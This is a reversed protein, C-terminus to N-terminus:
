EEEERMLKDSLWIFKGHSMGPFCFRPDDAHHSIIGLLKSSLLNLSVFTQESISAINLGERVKRLAYFLSFTLPIRVPKIDGDEYSYKIVVDPTPDVPATSKVPLTASKMIAITCKNEVQIDFEYKPSVRTQGISQLVHASFQNGLSLVKQLPKKVFDLEDKPVGAFCIKEYVLIDQNGYVAPRLMGVERKSMRSGLVQLVQICKRCADGKDTSVDFSRAGLGDEFDVLNELVSKLSLSEVGSRLAEQMGIQTSSCFGIEIRELEDLSEDMAIDMRKCYDDHILEWARTSNKRRGSVELIAKILRAVAKFEDVDSMKQLNNKLTQIEKSRFESYDGFLVQNYRRSALKFASALRETKAGTKQIAVHHRVWECPSVCVTRDGRSIRYFDEADVLLVSIIALLERFLINKGVAIEYAHLCYLIDAVGKGDRFSELNEYFPCTGKEDCHECEEADVSELLNRFLKYGPTSSLDGGYLNPDILSEVDMPWVYVSPIHLGWQGDREFRKNGSLPWMNPSTEGVSVVDSLAAMFATAYLADDRENICDALVGRNVCAIYAYRKYSSYKKVRLAFELVDERLSDHTVTTADEIVVIGDITDSINKRFVKKGGVREYDPIRDTGYLKMLFYEAAGTKGNGPGGVLFICPPEPCNTKMKEALASLNKLLRTEVLNSCSWVEGPAGITKVSEKMSGSFAFFFDPYKNSM